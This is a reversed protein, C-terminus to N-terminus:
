QYMFPTDSIFHEIGSETISIGIFADAVISLKIQAELSRSPVQIDVVVDGPSVPTELTQALGLLLMSSVGDERFIENGNVHIVVTDQEFGEQLDIHLTPM